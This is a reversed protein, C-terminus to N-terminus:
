VQSLSLHKFRVYWSYFDCVASAKRHCFPVDSSRVFSNQLRQKGTIRVQIKNLFGCLSLYLRTKMKIRNMVNVTEELIHGLHFPVFKNLYIITM